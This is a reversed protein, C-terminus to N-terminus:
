KKLLMKVAPLWPVPPTNELWFNAQASKKVADMTVVCTDSAGSCAGSWGTFLSGSDAAATLTVSAGSDFSASCTGGCDIGAPSSTVTGSGTGGKFVQLLPLPLAVDCTIDNGAAAINTVEIGTALSNYAKSNPSTADTFTSGPVYFDGADAEKNQEIEELGDAEMLRLLKHATYSNDYLYDNGGGDLRADVHWILLGDTPIQVDNREPKRHQVMFFEQFPTSAANPMVLLTQPATADSSPALVQGPYAGAKIVTPTLWDLVFKSFANHDGWTADMMDLGGVGGKPGVSDDYDYYDPLGLGHGTEHILTLPEFSGNPYYDAEWQWSYGGLKKGDVTYSSDSFETQYGWWFSAWAGHPGTWIVAFYDIVGDGNNDYQSFDHGLGEFYNIASKILAERGVYTQAVSSRNGAKYWGLTAGQLNLLGYSSRNYYASLSEYPYLTSGTDEAGFIRSDVVAQTDTSIHLYDNFEILLVFMKVNGTTPMNRWAPPPAPLIQEIEQATKGAAEYALRSLKYKTKAALGPAMKHNGIALAAQRREEWTGDKKYQEVQEATPPQLAQSTAACGLLLAVTVCWQLLNTQMM